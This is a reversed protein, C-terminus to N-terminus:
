FRKLQMERQRLQEEQDSGQPKRTSEGGRRAKNADILKNRDANKTWEADRLRIRESVNEQKLADNGTANEEPPQDTEPPKARGAYKLRHLLDALSHRCTLPRTFSPIYWSSQQIACVRHGTVVSLIRSARRRRLHHDTVIVHAM